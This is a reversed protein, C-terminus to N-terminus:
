GPDVAWEPLLRAELAEIVTDELYSEAVRRVDRYDDRLYPKRCKPTAIGLTLVILQLAIHHSPDAPRVTVCREVGTTVCQIVDCVEEDELCRAFHCHGTNSRWIKKLKATFAPFAHHDLIIQIDQLGQLYHELFKQEMGPRNSFMFGVEILNRTLYDFPVPGTCMEQVYHELSHTIAFSIPAETTIKPLNTM